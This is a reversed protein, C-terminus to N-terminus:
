LNLEKSLKILKQWNITCFESTLKNFTRSFLLEKNLYLEWYKKAMEVVVIFILCFSNKNEQIVSNAFNIVFEFVKKALSLSFM